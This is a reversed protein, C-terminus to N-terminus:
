ETRSFLAGWPPRPAADARTVAAFRHSLLLFGDSLPSCGCGRVRPLPPRHWVEAAGAHEGCFRKGAAAVMRCFRRKKEVFYSCRGEAPVGSAAHSTPAPGEMASSRDKRRAPTCGARLGFSDSEEPGRGKVFTAAQPPTDSHPRAVECTLSLFYAMVTAREREQVPLPQHHSGLDM